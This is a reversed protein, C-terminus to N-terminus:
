NTWAAGGVVRLGFVFALALIVISIIAMVKRTPHQFSKNATFGIISVIACVIGVGALYPLLFYLFDFVQKITDTVEDFHQVYGWLRQITPDLLVIGLTCITIVLLFMILVLIAVGAAFLAVVQGIMILISAVMAFIAIKNLIVCFHDAHMKKAVDSPTAIPEDEDFKPKQVIPTDTSTQVVEPEPAPAPEPTTQTTALDSTQAVDVSSEVVEPQTETLNDNDEM